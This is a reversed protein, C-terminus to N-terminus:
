DKKIRDICYEKLAALTKPGLKGEDFITKDCDLHKMLLMVLEPDDQAAM